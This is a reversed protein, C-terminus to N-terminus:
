IKGFLKKASVLFMLMLLILFNRNEGHQFSCGDEGNSYYNTKQRCLGNILTYGEDCECIIQENKVKCVTKHYETCSNQNCKVDEEVKDCNNNIKKNDYLSKCNSGVQLSGKDPYRYLENNSKVLFSYKSCTNKIPKSTVYEASFWDTNEYDEYIYNEPNWDENSITKDTKCCKNDFILFVEPNKNKGHYIMKFEVFSNMKPNKPEHIAVPIIHPIASAGFDQTTYIKVNGRTLYGIGVENFDSSFINERHGTTGPPAGKENIFNKTVSKYDSGTAINEGLMSSTYYRQIRDWINGGDCDNHEFCDNRIMDDSHYRAARSLALNWYLPKVPKFCYGWDKCNSFDPNSDENKVLQPALRYLNMEYLIYREEYNPYKNDYNGEQPAQEEEGYFKEYFFSKIPIGLFSQEASLSFTILFITFFIKGYMKVGQLM